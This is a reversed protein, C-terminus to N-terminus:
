SIGCHQQQTTAHGEAAARQWVSKKCAEIIILHTLHHIKFISFLVKVSFQTIIGNIKQPSYLFQLFVSNFSTSMRSKVTSLIFLIHFYEEPCFCYWLLTFCKGLIICMLWDRVTANRSKNHSSCWYVAAGRLEPGLVWKVMETLKTIAFTTVCFFLLNLKSFRKVNLHSKMEASRCWFLLLCGQTSVSVTESGRGHGNSSEAEQVCGATIMRGFIYPRWAKTTRFVLLSARVKSM